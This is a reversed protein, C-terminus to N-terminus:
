LKSIKLSVIAYDDDSQKTVTIVALYDEFKYTNVSINDENSITDPMWKRDTFINQYFLLIEEANRKTQFTTQRTNLTQSTCIKESGIPMPLDFDHSVSTGKVEQEASIVRPKYTQFLYYSGILFILLVFLAPIIKKYNGRMQVNENYM